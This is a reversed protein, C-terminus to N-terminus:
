SMIPMECKYDSEESNSKSKPTKLVPLKKEGHVSTRQALFLMLSTTNRSKRRFCQPRLLKSVQVKRISGSPTV